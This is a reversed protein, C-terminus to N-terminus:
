IKIDRKEELEGIEFALDQFRSLGKLEKRALDYKIKKSLYNYCKNYDLGAQDATKMAIDAIDRMGISKAKLLTESVSNLNVNPKAAIVAFVFPLKTFNKWEKGLDFIYSYHEQSETHVRSTYTFLLAEDGIILRSDAKKQNAKTDELYKVNVKYFKKFLIKLLVASTKSRKDLAVTKIEKIEKQSLLIVSKVEGDSAICIEPILKLDKSKLYEISPIFGVDIKGKRLLESIKAPTDLIIEFHHKLDGRVLPLILPKSNLFDHCGFKIKKM